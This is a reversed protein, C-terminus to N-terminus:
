KKSYKVVLWFAWLIVLLFIGGQMDKMGLIVSDWLSVWLSLQAHARIYILSISISSVVGIIQLISLVILLKKM